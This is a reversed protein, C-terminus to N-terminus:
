IFLVQKKNSLHVDYYFVKPQYHSNLENFIM